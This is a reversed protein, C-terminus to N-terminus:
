QSVMQKVKSSGSALHDRFNNVIEVQKKRLQINWVFEFVLYRPDFTYTGDANRTMYHRGTTVAKAVEDGLQILKPGLIIGQEVRRGPAIM